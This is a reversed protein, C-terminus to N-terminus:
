IKSEKNKYCKEIEKTKLEELELVDIKKCKSQDPLYIQIPM